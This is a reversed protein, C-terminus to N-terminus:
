RQREIEVTKNRNRIGRLIRVRSKSVDFYDALIKVLRANAKGDVPPASVRVVLGDGARTVEEKKANTKV